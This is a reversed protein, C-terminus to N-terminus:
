ELDNNSCHGLLRRGSSFSLYLRVHSPCGVVRPTQFAFSDKDLGYTRVQCKRSAQGNRSCGSIYVLVFFQFPIEWPYPNPHSLNEQIKVEDHPSRTRTDRGSRVDSAKWNLRISRSERHRIGSLSLLNSAGPETSRMAQGKPHCTKETSACIKQLHLCERWNQYEGEVDTRMPRAGKIQRMRTPLVLNSVYTSPINM